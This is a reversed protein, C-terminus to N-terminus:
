LLKMIIVVIRGPYSDSIHVQVVNLSRTLHAEVPHGTREDYIRIFFDESDWDHNIVVKNRFEQVRPANPNPSNYIDELLAQPVPDKSSKGPDMVARYSLRQFYRSDSDRPVGVPPLYVYHADTTDDFVLDGRHLGEQVTLDLSALDTTWIKSSVNNWKNSDYAQVWRTNPDFRLTGTSPIAGSYIPESVPPPIADLIPVMIRYPNVQKCVWYTRAYTVGAGVYVMGSIGPQNNSPAWGQELVKWVGNNTQATQNTVLVFDDSKTQYGDIKPYGSLTPLDATAVAACIEPAFESNLKIWTNTVPDKYKVIAPM